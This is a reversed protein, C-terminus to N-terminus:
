SDGRALREYVADMMSPRWLAVEVGARELEDIWEQQAETVKAREAKVRVAVVSGGRVLVVNPFPENSEDNVYALWGHAAATTAIWGRFEAETLAEVRSTM